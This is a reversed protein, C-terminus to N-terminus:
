VGCDTLSRVPYPYYFAYRSIPYLVRSRVSDITVAFLKGM